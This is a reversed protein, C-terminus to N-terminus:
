LLFFLKLDFKNKLNEQNKQEKIRKLVHNKLNEKQNVVNQEVLLALVGQSPM